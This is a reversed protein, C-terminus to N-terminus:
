IEWGVLLCVVKEVAIRVCRGKKRLILVVVVVFLGEKKCLVVWYFFWLGGGGFECLFLPLPVSLASIADNSENLLSTSSCFLWSDDVM